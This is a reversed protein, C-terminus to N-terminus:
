AYLVLVLVPLSVINHICKSQCQTCWHLGSESVFMYLCCLDSKYCPFSRIVAGALAMVSCVQDEHQYFLHMM